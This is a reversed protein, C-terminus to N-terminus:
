TEAAIAALAGIVKRIDDATNFLAMPLRVYEENSWQRRSVIGWGAWLRDTIEYNRMGEIEVNVQGVSFEPIPPAYVKAKPIRALEESMDKALELMHERAEVLDVDEFFEFSKRWAAYLPEVRSSGFEYKLATDHFTAEETGWVWESQAGSGTWSIAIKSQAERNIYMAGVGHPGCLWKFALLTYFDCGLDKVNVPLRGAAQAGDLHTLLGRARAIQCMERAPLLFGESSDVQSISLLRTKPGIAQELQQLIAEKDEVVRIKKIKTGFREGLAIWPIVNTPFEKDTIIVEDGEKWDLGYAITSIGDGISRTFAIEEPLAGLFRAIYQRLQEYDARREEALPPSNYGVEAALAYLRILDDRVAGLLPGCAATNIWTFNRLAPFQERIREINVEPVGEEGERLDREILRTQYNNRAASAM